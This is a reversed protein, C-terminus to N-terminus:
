PQGMAKLFKDEDEGPVSIVKRVIQKGEITGDDPKRVSIFEIRERFGPPQKEDRYWIRQRKAATEETFVITYRDDYRQGGMADNISGSPALRLEDYLPRTSYDLVIEKVWKGNAFAIQLKGVKLDNYLVRVDKKDQGEQRMADPKEQGPKRNANVFVAQLAEPVTMGIKVGLINDEHEKGGISSSQSANSAVIVTFFALPLLLMPFNYPSVRTTKRNVMSPYERVFGPRNGARM